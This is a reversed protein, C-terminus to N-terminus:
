WHKCITYQDKISWVPVLQTLWVKIKVGPANLNKVRVQIENTMNMNWCRDCFSHGLPWVRGGRAPSAICGASRLSPYRTRPRSLDDNNVYTVNQHTLMKKQVHGSSPPTCGIPFHCNYIVVGGTWNITRLGEGKM